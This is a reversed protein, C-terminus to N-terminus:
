RRALSDDGHVRSRNLRGDDSEDGLVNIVRALQHNGCARLNVARRLGVAMAFADGAAATPREDPLGALFKLEFAMASSRSNEPSWSPQPMVSPLAPRRPRMM